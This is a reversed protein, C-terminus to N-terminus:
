IVRAKTLAYRLPIFIVVTFVANIGGKLLNFPMFVTALMPAVVDRSVGMYFPTMIYNWLIMVATMAICGLAVGAIMGGINKIYKYIIAAVCVFAASSMINMIMGIIGTNSVTIMEIFAVITCGILAPVPGYMFGGIALIIDKPDYKLFDAFGIPIRGFFMVVYALACLMAMVVMRSVKKSNERANTTNM